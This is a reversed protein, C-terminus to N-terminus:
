FNKTNSNVPYFRNKENQQKFHLISKKSRQADSVAIIDGEIKDSILPKFDGQCLIDTDLSLVTKYNTMNFAYLGLYTQSFRNFRINNKNNNKIEFFEYGLDIFKFNPYIQTLLHQNKSNIKKESDMFIYFPLNFWYNYELISEILIILGPIYNNDCVTCVCINKSYIKKSDRRILDKINSKLYIQFYNKFIKKNNKFIFNNFYLVSIIINIKQEYCFKAISIM